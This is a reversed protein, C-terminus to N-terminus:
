FFNARDKKIEPIKVDKNELLLSKAKEILEQEYIQGCIDIVDCYRCIWQESALPKPPIVHEALAKKLVQVRPRLFDEIANIEWVPAKIKRCEKMSLYQVELVKIDYEPYVLWRYGNLQQIHHPFPSDFIPPKECTKYDRILMFKPKLLDPQGSIKEGDIEKWFRKECIGDFNGKEVIAHAIKGRFSWYMHEINGYFDYNKELYVKRPCTLLSTISIGEREELYSKLIERVLTESFPCPNILYKSCKYCKYFSVKGRYQCDIGVIM